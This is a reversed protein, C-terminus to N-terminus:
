LTMIHKMDNANDANSNNPMVNRMDKSSAFCDPDDITNVNLGIDKTYINAKAKAMEKIDLIKM